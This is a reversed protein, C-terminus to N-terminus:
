FSVLIPLAGVEINFTDKDKEMGSCGDGKWDM